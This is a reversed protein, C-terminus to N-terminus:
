VRLVRGIDVPSSWDVTSYYSAVLGRRAGQVNPQEDGRVVGEDEFVAEIERLVWGVLHEQFSRRTRRSLLETM